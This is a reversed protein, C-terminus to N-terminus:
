ATRLHTCYCGGTGANGRGHYDYQLRFTRRWSARSVLWGCIRCRTGRGCVLNRGFSVIAEDKVARRFSVAFIGGAFLLVLPIAFIVWGFYFAGGLGYMTRMPRNVLEHISAAEDLSLYLFVISLVAWHRAFIDNGKKKFFAILALLMSALLLLGSSFHSPINNELDLNFKPVFGLVRQHGTTFRLIQGVVSALVLM